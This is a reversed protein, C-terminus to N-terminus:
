NQMARYNVHLCVCVHIEGTQKVQGIHLINTVCFRTHALPCTRDPCLVPCLLSVASFCLQRVWASLSYILLVSLCSRHSLQYASVGSRHYIILLFCLQCLNRLRHCLLCCSVHYLFLFLSSTREDLGGAQVSSEKWTLGRM